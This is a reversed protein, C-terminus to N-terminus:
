EECTVLYKTAECRTVGSMRELRPEVYARVDDPRRRSVDRLIWGIAKRIFFERERLMDDAYGCFRDWEADSQKLSPLLALMSLRRVWFSEDVSWGDLLTGIRVTVGRCVVPGAVATALPDVLAWTEGDRVLEGVYSLHTEDLLSVKAALIEVASRRCEFFPGDWLGAALAVVDDAVDDAGLEPHDKLFAKVARRGLPVSVGLFERESKLYARETDARIPDAHPLLREVLEDALQNAARPSPTM